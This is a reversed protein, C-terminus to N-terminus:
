HFHASFIIKINFEGDSVPINELVEQILTQENLRFGMMLATSYEGKALTVKVNNPTIDIDLEFPDFM